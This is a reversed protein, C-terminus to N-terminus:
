IEYKYFKTDVSMIPFATPLSEKAIEEFKNKEYFRYAAIFKPTTGLYIEKLRVAITGESHFTNLLDKWLCQDRFYGWKLILQTIEIQDELM